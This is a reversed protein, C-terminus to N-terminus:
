LFRFDGEALYGTCIDDKNQYWKAFEAKVKPDTGDKLKVVWYYLGWGYVGVNPNMVFMILHEDYMRKLRDKIDDPKIGTRKLIISIGFKRISKIFHSRSMTHQLKQLMSLIHERNLTVTDELHFVTKKMWAQQQDTGITYLTEGM